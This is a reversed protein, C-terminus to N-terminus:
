NTSHPSKTALIESQLLNVASDNSNKKYNITKIKEEIRAGALEIRGKLSAM